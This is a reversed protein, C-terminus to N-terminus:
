VSAARRDARAALMAFISALVISAGAVVFFAGGAGLTRVIPEYLFPSILQGSFMSIAFGGMAKGRVGAEVRAFLWATCNATTTGIAAGALLTGLVVSPLSSMGMLIYACSLCAYAAAAIAPYSLLERLRSYQSAVAAAALSSAGLALGPWLPEAMGMSALHFSIQLTMLYQILWGSFIAVYVIAVAHLNLPPSKRTAAPAALPLSRVVPLLALAFVNAALAVRWHAMAALGGVIPSIGASLGRCASQWGLVRERTRGAFMDGILAGTATVIGALAFGLLIRFILLQGLSVAISALLNLISYAAIAISLITVKSWRDVLAGIWLASLIIAATPAVLLIGTGFNSERAANFTEGIVLLSPALLGAQVLPLISALILTLAIPRNIEDDQTM